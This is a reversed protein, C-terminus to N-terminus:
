PYLLHAVLVLDTRVDCPFFIFSMVGIVGHAASVLACHVGSTTARTSPKPHSSSKFHEKCRVVFLTPSFLTVPLLSHM